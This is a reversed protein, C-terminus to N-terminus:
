KASKGEVDMYSDSGKPVTVNPNDKALLIVVTANTEILAQYTMGEYDLWLIYCLTPSVM